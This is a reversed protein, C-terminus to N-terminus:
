LKRPFEIIDDQLYVDVEDVVKQDQQRPRLSKFYDQKHRKPIPTEYDSDESDENPSIRPASYWFFNLLYIKVLLYFNQFIGSLLACNDM